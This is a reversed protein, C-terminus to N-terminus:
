AGPELPPFIDAAELGYDGGEGFELL